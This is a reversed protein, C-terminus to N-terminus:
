HSCYGNPLIDGKQSQPHQVGGMQVGGCCGAGPFFWHLELTGTHQVELEPPQPAAPAASSTSFPISQNCRVAPMPFPSLVTDSAFEMRRIFKKEKEKDATVKLLACWKWREILWLDGTSATLPAVRQTNRHWYITAGVWCVCLYLQRLQLPYKQWCWALHM